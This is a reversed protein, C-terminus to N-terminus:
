DQMPTFWLEDTPRLTLVRTSGNVVVGDLYIDVAGGSSEVAAIRAHLQKGASDEYSFQEGVLTDNLDRATISRANHAINMRTM